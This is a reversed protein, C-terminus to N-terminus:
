SAGNEGELWERALELIRRPEISDELYHRQYKPDTIKSANTLVEARARELAACAREHQGAAELSEIHALRLFMARFYACAGTQEYIAVGESAASVADEVRGEALRIRALTALIAPADLVNKPRLFKMALDMERNAGEMDGSRRLIEAMAWHGEGEDNPLHRSMGYNILREAWERAEDFAGRECLLWVLSIPRPTAAFGLEEHSLTIGKLLAEAEDRAGLFWTQMGLFSQSIASFRLHELKRSLGASFEAHGRAKWPDQHAYAERAASMVHWIGIARPDYSIAARAFAQLREMMSDAMQTQGSLDLLYTAVTYALALPEETGKQVELSALAFLAAGFEERKGMQAACLMKIFMGRIWAQSGLKADHVLEDAYPLASAIETRQYYHMECSLGLLEIRLEHPVPCAL